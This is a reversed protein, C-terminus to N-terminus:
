GPGRLRGDREAAGRHLCARRQESRASGTVGDVVIEAPGNPCDFSVIPIGKTMAEILVM